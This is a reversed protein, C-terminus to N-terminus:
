TLKFSIYVEIFAAFVIILLSILSLLTLFKFVGKHTKNYFIFLFIYYAFAFGVGNSIWFGIFEISHPLTHKLIESVSASKAEVSNVFAGSIYGNTILSALSTIGFTAAGSINLLLLSINNVLILKLLEFSSKEKLIDSFIIIYRNDSTFKLFGNNCFYGIFFTVIWIIASLIIFYFITKNYM